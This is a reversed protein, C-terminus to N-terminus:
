MFPWASSPRCRMSSPAPVDPEPRRSLDAIAEHLESTATVRGTEAIADRARAITREFAEEGRVEVRGNILQWGIGAERFFGNVEAAFLGQARQARGPSVQVM